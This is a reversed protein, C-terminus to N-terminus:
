HKNGKDNVATLASYTGAVRSIPTRHLNSPALYDSIIMGIRQKRASELLICSSIFQTLQGFVWDIEGWRASVGGFRRAFSTINDSLTDSLPRHKLSAEIFDFPKELTESFHDFALSLYLGFEDVDPLIQRELKTEHSIKCCEVIKDHLQRRQQDLLQYRSKDPIRVVHVTSYYCKLLDQMNGIHFHSNKWKRAYKVFTSNENIKASTSALLNATANISNWQDEPTQNNSM